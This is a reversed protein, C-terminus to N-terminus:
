ALPKKEDSFQRASQHRAWGGGALAAGGSGALALVAVWTPWLLRPSRLQEVAFGIPGGGGEGGFSRNSIAAYEGHLYMVIPWGLVVLALVLRILMTAIAGRAAARWMALGALWAVVFAGTWLAALPAVDTMVWAIADFAIVIAASWALKTWSDLLIPYILTSVALQVIVLTDLALLEIAPATGVGETAWFKWRGAAAAVALLQLIIWAVM